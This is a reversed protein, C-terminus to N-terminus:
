LDDENVLDNDLLARQDSSIKMPVPGAAMVLTLGLQPSIKSFPQIEPRIEQSDTCVEDRSIASVALARDLGLLANLEAVGTAM